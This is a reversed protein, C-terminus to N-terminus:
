ISCTLGIFTDGLRVVHVKPNKTKLSNPFGQTIQPLTSLFVICQRFFLIQLVHYDVVAAKSLAAVGTILATSILALFAAKSNNTM